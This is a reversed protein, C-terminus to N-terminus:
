SDTASPPPSGPWDTCSLFRRPTLALGLDRLTRVLELRAVADADYQRYGAGSRTTAPVVGADAYFRITRVSLGTRRALEGISYLVDM